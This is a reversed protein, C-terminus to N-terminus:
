RVRREDCLTRKWPSGNRYWHWTRMRSQGDPAIDIMEVYHSDAVDRRDLRLLIIAGSQWGHGDFRETNWVLQSGVLSGGFHFEATRGDAWTMRNHQVYAHPGADPLECRTAVHYDDILAGDVGIHRYTGEWEGEHAFMAPLAARLAARLSM